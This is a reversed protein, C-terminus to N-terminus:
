PRHAELLIQHALGVVENTFTTCPTESFVPISASTQVVRKTRWFPPGELCRRNKASDRSSGPRYCRPNVFGTPLTLVAQCRTGPARWRRESKFLKLVRLTRGCLQQDGEPGKALFSFSCFVVCLAAGADKCTSSNGRRPMRAPNRTASVMHRRAVRCRERWSFLRARSDTLDGLRLLEAKQVLDAFRTTVLVAVNSWTKPRGRMPVFCELHSANWVDDLVVLAKCGSLANYLRAYGDSVDAPPDHVGFARLLTSQLSMVDPSQGVTIYAAGQPFIEGLATEDLLSACTAVTKGMGGAGHVICLGSAKLCKQLSKVLSESLGARRAYNAPLPPVDTLLQLSM